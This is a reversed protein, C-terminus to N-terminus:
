VLKNLLRLLLLVNVLLLDGFRIFLDSVDANFAVGHNRDPVPQYLVGVEVVM